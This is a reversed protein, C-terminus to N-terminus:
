LLSIVLIQAKTGVLFDSHGDGSSYFFLYGPWIKYFRVQLVQFTEKLCQPFFHSTCVLPDHLELEDLLLKLSYGPHYSMDKNKNKSFLHM